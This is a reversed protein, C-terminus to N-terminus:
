IDYPEKAPNRDIWPMYISIGIYPLFDLKPFKLGIWDDWYNNEYKNFM